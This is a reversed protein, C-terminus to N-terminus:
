RPLLYYCCGDVIVSFSVGTAGSLARDDVSRVDRLVTFWTVIFSVILIILSILFTALFFNGLVFDIPSRISLAHSPSIVHDEDEDAPTDVPLRGSKTLTPDNPQWSDTTSTTAPARPVGEGNKSIHIPPISDPDEAVISSM